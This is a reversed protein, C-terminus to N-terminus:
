THQQLYKSPLIKFNNKFCKSFYAPTNFGTKGSIQTINGRKYHLMVMARNLRFDRLFTSPSKGTLQKLKRYFQSSSLILIHGFESVKFNPSKWITELINM